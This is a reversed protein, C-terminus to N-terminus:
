LLFVHGPRRTPATTESRLAAFSTSHVCVTALPPTEGSYMRVNLIGVDVVDGVVDGVEDGGVFTGDLTGVVAGLEAGVVAGVAAGDFRGVTDVAGVTAGVDGVLAGVLAGVSGVGGARTLACNEFTPALTRRM